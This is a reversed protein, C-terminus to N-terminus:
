GLSAGQRHDHKELALAESMVKAPLRCHQLTYESAGACTLSFQVIEGEDKLLDDEVM